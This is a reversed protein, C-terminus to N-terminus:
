IMADDAKQEPLQKIPVTVIHTDSDRCYMGDVHLPSPRDTDRYQDDFYTWMMYALAPTIFALDDKEGGKKGSFYYNRRNDGKESKDIYKREYNKLQRLILKDPDPTGNDHILEKAFVIRDQDLFLNFLSQAREKTAHTTWFGPSNADKESQFVYRHACLLM